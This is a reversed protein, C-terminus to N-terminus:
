AVDWTGCWGCRCLVFVFEISRYLAFVLWHGALSLRRPTSPAPSHKM